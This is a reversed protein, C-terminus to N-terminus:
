ADRKRRVAVGVALLIALGNAIEQWFDPVNNIAFGNVLLGLFLAGLLAQLVSGRGGALAIGGVVVAAIVELDLGAGQGPTAVGIQSVIMVGSLAACLGTAAYLGLQVRQPSIGSQQAARPSLGVAYVRRGITTRREVILFAATVAAFLWVGIPAGLLEGHALWAIGADAEISIQRQDSLIYTVGRYVGLAALTTIFPDIRLGGIVIGNLLGALLGAALAALLALPAPVGDSLLLACIMGSMGVVSGVSIDIGGAIILMAQAVAIIGIIATQHLVSLLNDASIFAPNLLSFAVIEVLIGGVVAFQAFRGLSRRPRRPPASPPRTEADTSPTVAEITM